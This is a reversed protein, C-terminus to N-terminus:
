SLASFFETLQFSVAGNLFNLRRKELLRHRDARTRYQRAGKNPRKILANELLTEAVPRRM